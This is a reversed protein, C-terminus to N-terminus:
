PDIFLMYRNVINLPLCPCDLCMKGTIYSLHSLCISKPFTQMARRMPRHNDSYTDTDNPYSEYDPVKSSAYDNGSM